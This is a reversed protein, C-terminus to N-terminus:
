KLIIFYVANLKRPLENFVIHHPTNCDPLIMVFFKQHCTKFSECMNVLLAAIITFERQQPRISFELSKLSGHVCAKVSSLSPVVCMKM